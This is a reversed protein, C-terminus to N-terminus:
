VDQSIIRRWEIYGIIAIILFVLYQISTLALDKYYYLPISILDGIIWLTWNEIKKLAMLWMALIFIATTLSDVNPVTSDTFRILLFRILIFFTIFLSILVLKQRSSTRSIRREAKEGAQHTWNYWGFVSMIFYFANIGMDAYLGYKFCIYVYLFVSIIGTPYVLINNKAAYWVSILGFAVAIGEIWTTHIFNDIILQWVESM